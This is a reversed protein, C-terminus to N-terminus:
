LAEAITAIQNLDQSLLYVLPQENVPLILLAGGPIVFSNNATLDARFGWYIVKNATRNYIYLRTRAALNAVGVRAISPTVNSLTIDAQLPQGRIADKISLKGQANVLASYAEDGGIIRVPSSRQDSDLDAM